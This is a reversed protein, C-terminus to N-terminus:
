QVIFDILICILLPQSMWRDERINIVDELVLNEVKNESSVGKIKRFDQPHKWVGLVILTKMYM